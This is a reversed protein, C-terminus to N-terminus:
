WERKERGSVAILSSTFGLILGFLISLSFILETYHLHINFFRKIILNFLFLSFGSIFGGIIGYFVGEFVFPGRIAAESAGIIDLLNIVEKRRLITLRLTQVMVIGLLFILLIILFIDIFSLFIIFKSLPFIWEEGFIVEDVIKFSQIIKKISPYSFPLFKPEMTLVIREPFIDEEFLSLLTEYEPFEKAFEERAQRSNIVQVNKVGAYSKLIQLFVNKANEPVDEKLYVDVEIKESAKRLMHFANFTLIFFLFLVFLSFSTILIGTIGMRYNVKLGKYTEKLIFVLNM